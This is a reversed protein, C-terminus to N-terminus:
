IREGRGIKSNERKRQNWLCSSKIRDAYRGGKALFAFFPAGVDNITSFLDFAPGGEIVKDANDLSV